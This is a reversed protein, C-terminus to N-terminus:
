GAMVLRKVDTATYLVIYNFLMKLLANEIFMDSCTLPVHKVAFCDKILVPFPKLSRKEAAVAQNLALPFTETVFCNLKRHKVAKEIAQEDCRTPIFTM